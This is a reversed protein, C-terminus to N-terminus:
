PGRSGTAAENPSAQSIPRATAFVHPASGLLQKEMLVPDTTGLPPPGVEASRKQARHHLSPHGLPVKQGFGSRASISDRKEPAHKRAQALSSSQAAPVIQSGETPDPPQMGEQEEPWVTQSLLL